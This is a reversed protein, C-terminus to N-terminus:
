FKPFLEADKGKISNLFGEALEYDGAAFIVAHNDSSGTFYMRGTNGDARSLEITCYKGDDHVQVEGAELDWQTDLAAKTIVAASTATDGEHEVTISVATKAEKNSFVYISKDAGEQHKIEAWPANVDVTFYPTEVVAAAAAASFLAAGLVTLGLTRIM